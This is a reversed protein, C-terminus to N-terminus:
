LKGADPEGLGSARFGSHAALTYLVLRDAGTLGRFPRAPRRRKSSATSLPREQLARHRRTGFM